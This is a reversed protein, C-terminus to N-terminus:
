YCMEQGGCCVVQGACCVVQDAHGRCCVQGQSVGGSGWLVDGSCCAGWM